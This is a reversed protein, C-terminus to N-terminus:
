KGAASTEQAPAQKQALLYHVLQAFEAEPIAQAVNGPMLSLSSVSREEIEPAPVRIEKGQNDALVVVQGEDRLVLGSIITGSTTVIQTSRFAQDVNRNPDLVDELVRDIGRAGIGDLTPGIRAGDDGIRHCSACNKKFAAQGAVADPKAAAIFKRRADILQNVSADSPPL